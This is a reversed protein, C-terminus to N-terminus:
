MESAGRNKGEHISVTPDRTSCAKLIRDDLFHDSFSELVPSDERDRM